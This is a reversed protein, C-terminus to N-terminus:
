IELAIASLLRGSVLSGDRQARRHSFFLDSQSATDGVSPAIVAVARRKLRAMLYGPLDFHRDTFFAANAPDQALFPQPFEVGVEYSNQAICPGIAAVMRRPDAGLGQMADLASDTVGDLAGRWGAHVAGIVGADIDALLVPACDAGLVGLAVGRRKTVMGDAQTLPGQQWAEDIVLVRTGHVQQVAALHDAPLGLATVARDRNEQVKERADGTSFGCNLSAYLGESVGGRRTFFGHRLGAAATLAPASIIEPSRSV